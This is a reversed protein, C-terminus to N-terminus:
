ATGTAGIQSRGPLDFQVRIGGVVRIRGVVLSTGDNGLRRAAQTGLGFGTM